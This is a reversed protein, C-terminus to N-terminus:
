KERREKVVHQKLVEISQRHTDMERKYATEKYSQLDSNIAKIAHYNNDVAKTLAELKTELVQVTGFMIVGGIIFTELLKHWDM